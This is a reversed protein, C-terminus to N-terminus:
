KCRKDCKENKFEIEITSHSIGEKDLYDKLMKKLDIIEDKTIKDKVVLHMMIYNSIGDMSWIHIHHADAVNSFEKLIKSRIDKVNLSNPVKDLFINSIERINEFVHLLIYIAIFISLIPDIIYLGTFKIIISGILVAIWGLVDEFMHLNITKENINEKKRTKYVAFGNIIVGVIAFILMGDYNVKEVDILRPIASTLVLFSAVLLFISTLLAGVMSYRLYGFTFESDPKKKSKRECLYAIGISVADCFDHLSDSMIAISNTFFGGVFEAVAFLLNLIFALFINKAVKNHM